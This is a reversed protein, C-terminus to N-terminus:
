FQLGIWAELKNLEKAFLPGDEGRTYTLGVSYHEDPDM